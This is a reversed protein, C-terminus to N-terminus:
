ITLLDEDREALEGPKGLGGNLLKNRNSPRARVVEM